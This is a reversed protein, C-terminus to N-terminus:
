RRRRPAVLAVLGLLGLLLVGTTSENATPAVRCGCGSDEAATDCADGIGDGDSDTQASDAVTPCVDDVDNVGDGDQDGACAAGTQDPDRVLRCVDEDDNVGDNDSDTDRYDPTEDGDTDVPPTALDTDGAEDADSVGDGDSDDDLADIMADDDTARPDDLPGVEERDGITDGDSDPNTHDLDHALEWADPLGDGDTDLPVSITVEGSQDACATMGCVQLAVTCTGAAGPTFTYVGATSITGGCTDDGTVSWTLTADDADTAAAQYAYGVGATATAPPTTTFVPGDDVATITVTTEQTTCHGEMDCAEVSVMCSAAPAPGAPTFRYTGGDFAGGCTDDDGVSLVVTGGEPDIAVPTYAYATDETATAPATSTFDPADDDGTITIEIEQSTCLGANEQHVALGDGVLAFGDDWTTRSGEQAGLEAFADGTRHIVLLRVVYSGAEAFDHTVLTDIESANAAEADREDLTVATGGAVPSLELRFSDPTTVAFTWEGAPVDVIGVTEIVFPGTVGTLVGLADDPLHDGDGAVGFNVTAVLEDDDEATEALAEAAALDAAESAWLRVAWGAVNEADCAELGIVCTTDTSAQEPTFTYTGSADIAGGCTDAGTVRWATTSSDADSATAQYTYGEGETADAPTSSISPADNVAEITVVTQATDCAEPSAGDCVTVAVVCSGAPTPGAPTFGYVGTEADITGGCTDAAAVSWTAEPGDPDDVTPAFTYAEDETATSSPTGQIVPADNLPAISISETQTVCTTEHTVQLGGSATDGVLAFGSDWVTWTGAKAFLEGEAGGTAEFILVRLEYTGGETFTYTALTDGPGRTSTYESITTYASAGARRVELRFGDDSSVGFTYTAGAPVSINGTARTVFHNKTFGITTPNVDPTYHGGSASDLWNVVAITQSASSSQQSPTAIVGLATTLNSITVNAFWTEFVFGADGGCAKVGVDCATATQGGTEGPTFTYVGAASITGGCTDGAAVSWTTTISDPDSPGAAYTYPLDEVADGPTTTIAPADDVAVITITQQLDGCLGPSGGDCIRIGLVCSAAPVPGAPTFTYAGTSASVTGGCTDADLRSWTAGPGDPDSVGPTFTYAVDETANGPTGTITPADNSPAIAIEEAQTTCAARVTSGKGVLDFAADWATHGGQRAFVEGSAGGEGQFIVVRLEYTGASPFTYTALTDETGRQGFFSAITDYTSAGSPRVKLSFGDDSGVGFSWDGPSPIEMTTTALMVFHSSGSVLGAPNEEPRYHGDSGLAWNITSVKASSSSSVLAPDAIVSEAATLNTVSINAYLIKVDWAANAGDCATVGITCAGASASGTEGPTLTYVGTTANVTGGCTDAGARTWGIGVGDPDSVTPTYSYAVDETADGPTSTFSPADNVPTIQITAELTDCLSTAAGDCVKVALTCSSAPVPGAPTFTYTGTSANVAGGCTDNTGRSWTAGPGDPDSKTPSFTFAVDEIARGPTGGLEPADNTPAISITAAESDCLDLTASRLGLGGAETDGVLAFDSNWGDHEGEAAFLEGAAGGAREYVLVRLEYVGATPFSYTAVSDGAGDSSLVTDYTSAGAPRVYLSYGDDAFIGFTWTGPTEIAVHGVGVVIFDDDDQDPLVAPTVEPEYHGLSGAVQSWNYVALTETDSGLQEAPDALVAEATALDNLEVASFVTTVQWQGPEGADCVTVGVTCSGTVGAQEGPTFTYTGTDDFSGGCSDADSVLWVEEPGDPDEVTPDYVYTVGETANGPASSIEPADNVGSITITRLLEGCASPSGADCVSLGLVCSAAPAPGAPTFSYAGTASNVLGGCTDGAARSWTRSTPGDVDTVGPTFSYATDETATTEPTGTIVPADNVATISITADQADCAGTGTYVGLGGNATDGVLQFDSDWSTTAGERAFLEGQAGGGREFIVLRLEYAGATPFSYTAITDESGREGPHEALVEYAGTSGAPRVYLGFGDDSNVGFTWEGATPIVVTGTALLAFDDHGGVNTDFFAPNENTLYHGEDGSDYFNIFSMDQPYVGAQLSPDAILAEADALEFVWTNSQYIAASFGRAGGDCVEIALECSAGQGEDPLFTYVGDADITGGCTDSGDVSWLETPGDSDTVDADYTYTQDETAPSPPTTAIVPAAAWAPAAFALVAAVVSRTFPTRM